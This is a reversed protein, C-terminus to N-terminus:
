VQNALVLADHGMHVPPSGAIDSLSAIALRTDDVDKMVSCFCNKPATPLGPESTCTIPMPLKSSNAYIMMRFKPPGFRASREATNTAEVSDLIAPKAKEAIQPAM